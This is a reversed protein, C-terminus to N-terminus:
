SCSRARSCASSCRRGGKTTPPSSSAWSESARRCSTRASSSADRDRTRGRSTFSTSHDIGSRRGARRARSREMEMASPSVGAPAACRADARSSPPARTARQSRSCASSRRSRPLHHVSGTASRAGPSHFRSRPSRAHRRRTPQRAVGRGRARRPVRFRVPPHRGPPRAGPVLDRAALASLVPLVDHRLVVRRFTRDDNMPDALVEIGLASCLAHTDARRFQLLPRVLWGHRPAMGSLGAAAAGRLVNLLVTEAQDDATHGVLVVDLGLDTRVRDLAEYRADRARAEVNPGPEVVVATSRFGAGLRAAIAAVADAEATSGPRLGHDVHVAVARARRRGGARAARGLRRGGLVRRRRTRRARAGRRRVARAM